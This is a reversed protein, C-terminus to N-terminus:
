LNSLQIVLMGLLSDIILIQLLCYNLQTSLVIKREKLFLRLNKFKNTLLNAADATGDAGYIDSSM